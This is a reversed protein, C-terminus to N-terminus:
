LYNLAVSKAHTMFFFYAIQMTPDNLQCSGSEEFNLHYLFLSIDEPKETTERGPEERSQREKDRSERKGLARLNNLFRWAVCALLLCYM